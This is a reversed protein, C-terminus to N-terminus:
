RDGRRRSQFISLASLAALTMQMSKAQDHSKFEGQAIEGHQSVNFNAILEGISYHYSLSVYTRLSNYPGILPMKFAVDGTGTNNRVRVAWAVVERISISVSCRGLDIIKEGFLM